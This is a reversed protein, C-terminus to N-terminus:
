NKSKLLDQGFFMEIMETNTIEAIHLINEPDYKRNEIWIKDNMTKFPYEFECVFDHL